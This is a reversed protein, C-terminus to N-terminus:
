MSPLSPPKIRGLVQFKQSPGLILRVSRPPETSSTGLLETPNKFNTPGANTSSTGTGMDVQKNNINNVGFDMDDTAILINNNYNDLSGIKMVFDSPIM